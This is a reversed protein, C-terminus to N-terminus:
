SEDMFDNLFNSFVEYPSVERMEETYSFNIEKMVETRGDEYSVTKKILQITM